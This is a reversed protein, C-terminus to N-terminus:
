RGQHQWQRLAFDYSESEFPMYTSAYFLYPKGDTLFYGGMVFLERLQKDSYGLAQATAPYRGHSQRYAIVKEVLLQAQDRASTARYVHMGVILSVSCLWIAAQSARRARQEPHRFGIWLSAVLWPLLFLLVLFLMFGCFPQCLLLTVIGAGILTSRLTSLWTRIAM